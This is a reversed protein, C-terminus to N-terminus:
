EDDDDNVEERRVVEEDDGLHDDLSDIVDEFKLQECIRRVYLTDFAAYIEPKLTRNIGAPQLVANTLVCDYVRM